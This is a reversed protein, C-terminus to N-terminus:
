ASSELYRALLKSKQFKGITNFLGCSRLDFGLGIEEPVENILQLGYVLAVHPQYLVGHVVGLSQQIQKGVGCGGILLRPQEPWKGSDLCRKGVLCLLLLKLLM